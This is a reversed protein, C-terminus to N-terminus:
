FSTLGPPRLSSASPQLSSASPQLCTTHEPQVGFAPPQLSFTPPQLSFAPLQLLETRHPATRHPASRQAATRHQATHHPATRHPAAALRRAQSIKQMRRKCVEGTTESFRRQLSHWNRTILLLIGPSSCLKEEAANRGAVAFCPYQLM